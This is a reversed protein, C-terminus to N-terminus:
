RGVGTQLRCSGAGHGPRPTAGGLAVIEVELPQGLLLHLAPGIGEHPEVAPELQLVACVVQSCRVSVDGGALRLEGADSHPVIVGFLDDIAVNGTVVEPQFRSDDVEVSEGFKGGDRGPPQEPADVLVVVVVVVLLVVVIVVVAVSSWSM